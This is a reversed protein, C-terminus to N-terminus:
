YSIRAQLSLPKLVYYSIFNHELIKWCKIDIVLIVVKKHIHTYSCRQFQKINGNKSFHM